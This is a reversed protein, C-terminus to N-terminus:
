EYVVIMIACNKKRKIYNLCVNVTTTTVTVCMGSYVSSRYSRNPKISKTRGARGKSAKAFVAVLVCKTQKWSSFLVLLNEPYPNPADEGSM